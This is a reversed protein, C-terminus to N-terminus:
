RAFDCMDHELATNVKSAIRMLKMFSREVSQIDLIVIDVGVSKLMDASIEGTFCWKRIPTCKAVERHFHVGFSGSSFVLKRFYTCSNDDLDLPM